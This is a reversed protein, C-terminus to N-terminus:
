IKNVPLISLFLYRSFFYKKMKMGYLNNIILKEYVKSFIICNTENSKILKKLRETTKRLSLLDVKQM